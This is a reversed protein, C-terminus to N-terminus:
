LPIEDDPVLIATLWAVAGEWESSGVPQEVSSRYELEQVGRAFCEVLSTEM